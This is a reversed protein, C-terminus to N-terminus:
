YIARLADSVQRFSENPEPGRQPSTGGSAHALARDIAAAAEVFGFGEVPYPFVSDIASWQVLRVLYEVLAAGTATGGYVERLEAVFGAVWPAAFSTGAARVCIGEDNNATEDPNLPEAAGGMDTGEARAMVLEFSGVATVHPQLDSFTTDRATDVGIAEDTVILPTAKPTGDKAAAGVVLAEVANAPTNLESSLVFTNGVAVVTTVGAEAADSIAQEVDNKGLLLQGDEDIGFLGEPLDPGGLSLNIVQAGQEVAWDIGEQVAGFSVLEPDDAFNVKGVLLHANEVRGKVCTGKGAIRSAVATGHGFDDHPDENLGTFNKFTVTADALDPHTPDIGSDLIAVCPRAPPCGAEVPAALSVVLLTVAFGASVKELM